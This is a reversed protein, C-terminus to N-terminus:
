RPCPKRGTRRAGAHLASRAITPVNEFRCQRCRMSAGTGFLWRRFSRRTKRRTLKELQQRSSSPMNRRRPVKRHTGGTQLRTEEDYGPIRSRAPLSSGGSKWWTEGCDEGPPIDKGTGAPVLRGMILEGKLGRLYDVKGISPPELSCARPRRSRRRPFSRITSLSGQHHGPLIAKGPRVSAAEV